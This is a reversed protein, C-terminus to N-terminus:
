SRENLKNIVEPIKSSDKICFEPVEIEPFVWYGTTMVWVPTYGAKRSPEIDNQPNDGVYILNEPAIGLREAMVEFPKTDPKGVGLEQSIIIEDFIDELDLMKLKKRQLESGGNTILGLKLGKNKLELLMPKAFDYPVAYERFKGNLFTCYFEFTPVTKFVNEKILYEHIAEWGYHNFRKDAYEVIDAAKEDTMGDAVDFYQCFGKMCIRQTAYRDFLTHDLDFVAGKIMSNM